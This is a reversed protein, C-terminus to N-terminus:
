VPQLSAPQQPEPKKQPARALHDVACAGGGLFVLALCGALLIFNYEWGSGEATIFGRAATVLVIAGIQIAIMGAAAIRTLVGLVLAAGGVLEGWAVAFQVGNYTLLKPHEESVVGQQQRAWIREAWDAGWNGRFNDVKQWGHLLFVAGLGLRLVLAALSAKTSANTRPLPDIRCLAGLM